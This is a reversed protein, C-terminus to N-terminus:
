GRRNARWLHWLGRLTLTDDVTAEHRLLAAMAGAGDGTM